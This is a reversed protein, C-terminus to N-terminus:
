LSITTPINFPFPLPMNFPFYHPCVLPFYYHPCILPFHYQAFWFSLTTPMDFPLFLSCIVFSLYTLMKFSLLLSRCSSTICSASWLYQLQQHIEKSSGHILNYLRINTWILLYTTKFPFLLSLHIVATFNLCVTGPLSYHCCSLHASKLLVSIVKLLRHWSVWHSQNDM